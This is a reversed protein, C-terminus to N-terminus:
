GELLEQPAAGLQGGPSRHRHHDARRHMTDAIVRLRSRRGEDNGRDEVTALVTRVVHRAVGLAAVIRALATRIGAALVPRWAAARRTFACMHERVTPARPVEVTSVGVARGGVVAELAAGGAIARVLQINQLIAPVQDPVLGDAGVAG